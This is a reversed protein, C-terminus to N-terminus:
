PTTVRYFRRPGGKTGDFVSNLMGNGQVPPAIDYWNESELTDTWQVQYTTGTNSPWAIEVATWIMIALPQRYAFNRVEFSDVSALGDFVPDAKVGLKDITDAARRPREDVIREGNM